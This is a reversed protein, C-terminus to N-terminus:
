KGTCIVPGDGPQVCTSSTGGAVLELEFDSLEGDEALEQCCREADQPTFTFNYRKGLESLASYDIGQAQQALKTIEQQIEANADAAKRFAEFNQNM